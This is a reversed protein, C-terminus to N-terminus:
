KMRVKEAEELLKMCDELTNKEKPTLNLKETNLKTNIKKFIKNGQICLDQDIIYGKVCDPVCVGM